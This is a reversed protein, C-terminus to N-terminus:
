RKTFLLPMTRKDARKSSRSDQVFLAPSTSGTIRKTARAVRLDDVLQDFANRRVRGLAKDEVQQRLAKALGSEEIGVRGPGFIGGHAQSARAVEKGGRLAKAILTYRGVELRITLGEVQQEFALKAATNHM